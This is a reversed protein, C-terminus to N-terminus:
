NSENQNQLNKENDARLAAIVAPIDFRYTNGAKIYTHRPISGNRVWDRVTSPKVRLAQAVEEVVAWESSEKSADSM